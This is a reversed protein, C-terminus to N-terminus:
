AKWDNTVDVGNRKVTLTDDLKIMRKVIVDCYKQDLEMGYCKRKLQHSAVMTSGSGLFIDLVLDNDISSQLIMDGCLDIPKITPHSVSNEKVFGKGNKYHLLNPLSILGKSYRDKNQKTAKQPNNYLDLSMEGLYYEFQQFPKQISNFLYNETKSFYIINEIISRFKNDVSRATGKLWYLDQIYNFNCEKIQKHMETLYPYLGFAFATANDKCNLLFVDMVAKVITPYFEFSDNKIEKKDLEVEEKYTVIVENQISIIQRSNEKQAELTSILEDKTVILSDAGAIVSDAMVREKKCNEYEALRYAIIRESAITFV